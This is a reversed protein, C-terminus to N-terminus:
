CVRHSEGGKDARSQEEFGQEAEFSSGFKERSKQEENFNTVVILDIAM